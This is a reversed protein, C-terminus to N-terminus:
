DIYALYQPCACTSDELCAQTPVTFTDTKRPVNIDATIMKENCDYDCDCHYPDDQCSHEVMPVTIREKRMYSGTRIDFTKGCTNPEQEAIYFRGDSYQANVALNTYFVGSKALGANNLEVAEELTEKTQKKGKFFKVVINYTETRHPDQNAETDNPIVELSYSDFSKNNTIEYIIYGPKQILTFNKNGLNRAQNKLTAPGIYLLGIISYPKNQKEAIEKLYTNIQKSLNKNELIENAEFANAQTLAFIAIALIFLKKM